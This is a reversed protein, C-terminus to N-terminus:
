WRGLGTGLVLNPLFTAIEPIYTTLFLAPLLSFLMFPVVYWFYDELPTNMIAGAEYLATAVPPTLLGLGLGCMVIGACHYPNVGLQTAVPLLLIGSLISGSNDDIIMGMLILFVDIMLLQIALNGSVSVLFAILQQVINQWVTIRSIVFLFFLIGVIMGILSSSHLMAKSLETRSLSRYVVLSTLLAYVSGVAAAETPTFIGGYIGGLVIIPMVLVLSARKGYHGLERVRGAFGMKPFARIHFRRTMITNIISNLIIIVVGPGVTALFCGAISIGGAFGFMIMDMSPPIFLALMASSVIIAVSYGRDYGEEVMRPFMLTGFTALASAASGSIAGFAGCGWVVVLGLGGKVRGVIVNVFDILRTALGSYQMLLGMFIFLPIAVLPFSTLLDFTSPIVWGLKMHYIWIMILSGAGFAFGIPVKIVLLAVVGMIVLVLTLM